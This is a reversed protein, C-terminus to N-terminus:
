GGPGEVRYPVKAATLDVRLVKAARITWKGPWIAASAPKGTLYACLAVAVTPPLPHRVSKKNKATKGALSVAPPDDALHFHAPTLAALESARFGTAFATLYLHYRDEGTLNRV